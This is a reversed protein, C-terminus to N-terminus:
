VGRFCRQRLNWKVLFFDVRRVRTKFYTPIEFYDKSDDVVVAFPAGTLNRISKLACMVITVSVTIIVITKVDHNTYIDILQWGGRWGNVCVIASINTYLRSGIYFTLRHKDPNFVQHFFGQGMTFILHGAIGITLSAIASHISNEPFLYTGMLNWTGRWYFVVLPALILSSFLEDVLLLLGSYLSMKTLGKLGSTIGATSGRMKKRNEAGKGNELM